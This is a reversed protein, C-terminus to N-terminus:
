IRDFECMSHKVPVFVDSYGGTESVYGSILPDKFSLIGDLGVEGYM